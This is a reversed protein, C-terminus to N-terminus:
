DILKMLKFIADAVEGRSMGASPNIVSANRDILELEKAYAIYPAFWADPDVDDYPARDVVPNIDISMGNFLIKFFEAKNVTDSPRFTGEPDGNVIEKTYSTYLYDAYWDDDSTDKFPLVGTMLEEGIGELIFKLAEVRSVTREPKFSGDEYGKVIEENVLYMIAEYYQHDTSVDIFEAEVDPEVIPDEVPDDVSEEVVDDVLEDVVTEDVVPEEVVEDEVEDVVTEDVIPDEDSSDETVYSVAEPGEDGSSAISPTIPADTTVEDDLYKQVYVMPNVTTARASAQGLGENVASFFNLGADSVEQWTFPWFPHWPAQDNDIQFHLHPTTATGSSGSLAIQQGKTVVDGVSVFNQSNHSYSSYIVTKANPDVLSPFNNHQVVIHHGFGSSQDSAKIVTGNAISFIPTGEPIKIDVAPHSGADEYGDLKYNGLYPVSYTIKANRIMNHAPDGWVLSDTSTKLQSPNYEPVGILDSDSLSLFNADWKDGDLNVWDPTKEVPYTTGDFAAHEPYDLISTSYLLSNVDTFAVISSVAMTAVVAIGTKVKRLRLREM